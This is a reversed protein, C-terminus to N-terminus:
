EYAAEANLYDRERVYLDGLFKNYVVAISDGAREALEVARRANEFAQPIKDEKAYEKALVFRYLSNKPALKIAAEMNEYFGALDDSALLQSAVAYKVEDGTPERGLQKALENRIDSESKTEPRLTAHRESDLSTHATGKQSNNRGCGCVLVSTLVVLVTLVTISMIRGVPTRTRIRSRGSELLRQETLLMLLCRSM